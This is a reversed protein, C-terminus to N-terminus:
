QRVQGLPINDAPNLTVVNDEHAELEGRWLPLDVYFTAGEGPASEFGIRGGMGEVLAKVISLGLGTGEHRRTTSADAQSFKEFIHDKFEEPIGPGHDSVGVRVMNGRRWTSVEVTGNKPSFKAANSLLNTMVQSFRDPDAAVVIKSDVALPVLSIGYVRELEKNENITAGIASALSVPESRVQMAGAEIRELDLIDNILRILRDSNSKAIKILRGADESIDGAAGGALLGLAGGISTLPTRLEHSVTSIFENKLSESLKRQTVDRLTILFVERPTTRREIAQNGLALETRSISIEAPFEDGEMRLGVTDMPADAIGESSNARLLACPNDTEGALKPLFDFVPRGLADNVRCKFIRAAAPNLSRIGGDPGVSLIGDFSNDVVAELTARRHVVSMSEAFLRWTQRNIVLLLAFGYSMATLLGAPAIDFSYPAFKQLLLTGVFLAALVNLVVLLGRRWHWEAFRPGLAVALVLALALAALGSLRSLARGQVISEYAAAEVLVGPLVRYIPVALFDGLEVATSGVLITRGAIEAEEFEGRVIDIFSLRPIRSLDIGFDIYFSGDPVSRIGSLFDPLSPIGVGDTFMVREMRRVLGDAEPRVNIAALRAHRALRPLPATDILVTAGDADQTAQRFVPLVVRRDAAELASALRRDAADTSRSSFDIDLAIQRAGSEVLNDILDAHLDRTWPWTGIERISRPDIEVITLDSQVPRDLVRFRIDFLQNELFELTGTLYLVSVLLFAILHPIRAIM